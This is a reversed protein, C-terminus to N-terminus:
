SEDGNRMEGSYQLREQITRMLKKVEEQNMGTPTFYVAALPEGAKNYVLEHANHHHKLFLYRFRSELFKPHIETRKIIQLLRVWSQKM